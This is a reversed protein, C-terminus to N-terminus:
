RRGAQRFLDIAPQAKPNGDALAQVLDMQFQRGCTVVVRAQEPTMGPLRELNIMGAAAKEFDNKGLSATTAEVLGKITPDASKFATDLAKILNQTTSSPKDKSVKRDCGGTLLALM